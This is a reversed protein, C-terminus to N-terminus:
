DCRPSDRNRTEVPSLSSLERRPASRRNVPKLALEKVVRIEAAMAAVTRGSRLKAHRPAGYDPSCRRCLAASVSLVRPDQGRQLTVAHNQLAVRMRLASQWTAFMPALM